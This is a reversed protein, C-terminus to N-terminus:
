EMNPVLNVEVNGGPVISDPTVYCDLALIKVGASRAATLAHGFESHTQWNPEMRSVNKMQILFLVVAGYGQEVATVLERLHKVGRMTPADPFLAVGNQELTVGKVEILVRQREEEVCFDFRSSGFRFEQHIAALNGFLGSHPLWRAVVKNPVQSDINVLRDGKQVTILDYKTKRKHSDQEQVWVQVGPILLEQCRGTNKVHCNEVRGDLEIEAIFRNPRHLFIAPRINEYKVSIIRYEM